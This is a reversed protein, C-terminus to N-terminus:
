AACTGADQETYNEYFNFQAMERGDILAQDPDLVLAQNEVFRQAEVNQGFVTQQQSRLARLLETHPQRDVDLKRRCVTLDHSSPYTLFRFLVVANSEYAAALIAPV